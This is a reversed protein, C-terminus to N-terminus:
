NNFFIKWTQIDFYKVNAPSPSSLYFVNLNPFYKKTLEYSKKGTCGIRFDSINKISYLDNVVIEKINSDLSGDRKCSKVIDWLAINHRILVNKKDSITQPYDENFFNAILKYFKNQPHLYYFDGELSKVSPFSGLILYKTNETVNFPAFGILNSKSLM